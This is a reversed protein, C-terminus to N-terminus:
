SLYTRVMDEYDLQYYEELYKQLAAANSPEAALKSRKDALFKEATSVANYYNVDDEEFVPKEDEDEEYYKEDFVSSMQQDHKEPDFEEDLDVGKLAEEAVATLM